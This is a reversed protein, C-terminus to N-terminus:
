PEAAADEGDAGAFDAHLQAEAPDDRRLELRSQMEPQRPRELAVADDRLGQYPAVFDSRRLRWRARFRRARLELPPWRESRVGRRSAGGRFDPKRLLCGRRIWGERGGGGSEDV